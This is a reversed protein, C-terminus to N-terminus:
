ETGNGNVKKSEIRVLVGHKECFGKGNAGGEDTSGERLGLNSESLLRIGHLSAHREGEFPGTTIVSYARNTRTSKFSASAPIKCSTVM